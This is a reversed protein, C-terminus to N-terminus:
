IVRPKSTNDSSQNQCLKLLVRILKTLLVPHKHLLEEEDTELCVTCLTKNPERQQLCPAPQQLVRGLDTLSKLNRIFM